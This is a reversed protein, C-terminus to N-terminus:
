PYARNSGIINNLDVSGLGTTGINFDPGGVIHVRPSAPLASVSTNNTNRFLAVNASNLLDYYSNKLWFQYMDGQYANVLATNGTGYLGGFLTNTVNDSTFLELSSSNNEGYYGYTALNTSNIAFDNQFFGSSGPEIYRHYGVGNVVLHTKSAKGTGTNYSRKNTMNFTAGGSNGFSVTTNSMKISILIHNWQNLQIGANFNSVGTGNFEFSINGTTPTVSLVSHETTATDPSWIVYSNRQPYLWVNLTLEEQVDGGGVGFVNNATEIYAADAIPVSSTTNNFYFRDGVYNASSFHQRFSGTFSM